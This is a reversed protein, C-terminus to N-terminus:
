IINRIKNRDMIRTKNGIIHYEKIEKINKDKYYKNEKM